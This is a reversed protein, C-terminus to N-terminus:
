ASRCPAVRTGAHALGAAVNRATVWRQALPMPGFGSDTNIHGAHGFDVHRCDWRRAWRRSSEFTMWPDNRSGVLTADLGLPRQPLRAGVGFKDPEAPAVMLVARIPSAPHLDLHRALALCGFSHAVAICPGDVGALHCGIAGAWDDLDPVTWDRQVVRLAGRHRAQLWSQWHAPGSDNLGPIILLRPTSM